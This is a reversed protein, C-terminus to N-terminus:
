QPVQRQPTTLIHETEGMVKGILHITPWAGALRERTRPVESSEPRM